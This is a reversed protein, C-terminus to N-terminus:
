VEAEQKNISTEEGNILGIASPVALVRTKATRHAVPNFLFQLLKTM